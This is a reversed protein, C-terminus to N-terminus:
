KNVLFTSVLIQLVMIKFKKPRTKTVHELVNFFFCPNLTDSLQSILPLIQRLISFLVPPSLIVYRYSRTYVLLQGVVHLM